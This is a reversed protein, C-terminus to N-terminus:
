LKCNFIGCINRNNCNLSFFSNVAISNADFITGKANRFILTGRVASINTVNDKGSRIAGSEPAPSHIPGRGTGARLSKRLAADLANVPGDGEGVVHVIQDGVKV